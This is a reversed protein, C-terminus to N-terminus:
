DVLQDIKGKLTSMDAQSDTKCGLYSMCICFM